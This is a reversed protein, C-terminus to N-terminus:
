VINLTNKKAATEYIELQQKFFKKDINTYLNLNKNKNLIQRVEWLGLGTNNIKSSFGKEFIRETDINKEYYTNEVILLQRNRSTDKIFEINIIKENCRYSAEIANDVLIGLIRSFEYIKMNLDKLNFLVNLNITIGLKSAKEYKSCLMNYIGPENITEPTLFSLTNLKQCDSFLESYYTKLGKIDNSEIYGGMTQLINSFDHKFAKQGDLLIKLSNNYYKLQKLNEMATCSTITKNLNSLTAFIFVISIITSDIMLLYFPINTYFYIIFFQIFLVIFILLFNLAYLWTNKENTEKLLKM